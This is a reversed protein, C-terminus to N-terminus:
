SWRAGVGARVTPRLGRPRPSSPSVEEAHRTTSRSPPRFCPMKAHREPLTEEGITLRDLLGTDVIGASCKPRELVQLLFTRQDPRRLRGARKRSARAEAPGAGRRPQPRPAALKAFMPGSSRPM